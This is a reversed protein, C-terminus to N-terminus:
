NFLFSLNNNDGLKKKMRQKAKKVADTTIGLFQSIEVNNFGLKQLFVIRKNSDTLEPFHVILYQCFEPFEKEFERKFKIWNEETMLHSELLAHLKGSRKELYSSASTEVNKIEEILRNIQLNKNKLYEVQSSFSKNSTKLKEEMKLKQIELEIVKQEYDEQRKKHKKKQFFYLGITGLVSIGILLGFINKKIIENQYLTNTQEIKQQYKDKEVQWKLLQVQEDGDRQSLSDKLVMLRRATILEQEADPKLKLLELKLEIVELESKRFYPKSAAIAEAEKLIAEAETVNNNKLYVSALATTAFMTNKEAKLRKSLAIDQKLLTIAEAYNNQKELVIAKNGITKAYRLSDNVKLAIEGANDFHKIAEKYRGTKYLNIGYNDLIAAYNASNPECYKLALTLYYDAEQYDSLTQMIWGITQYTDLPNIIQTEKTQRIDKMLELLVPQMEQYYRFQYLRKVYNLRTWIQLSKNNTADAQEIAKLYLKTSKPFINDYVNVYGNALLGNYIPLYTESKILPELYKKLALTDKDFSREQQILQTTIQFNTGGKPIQILQANLNICVSLVLLYFFCPVKM